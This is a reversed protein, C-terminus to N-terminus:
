LRGGGRSRGKMARRAKGSTWIKVAPSSTCRRVGRLRGPASAAATAALGPRYASELATEAEEKGEVVLVPYRHGHHEQEM